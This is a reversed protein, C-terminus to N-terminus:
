ISGERPSVHEDFRRKDSFLSYDTCCHHFLSNLLLIFGSLRQKKGPIFSLCVCM